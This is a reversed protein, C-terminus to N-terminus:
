FLFVMRWFRIVSNEKEETIEREEVAPFERIESPDVDIIDPREFKKLDAM